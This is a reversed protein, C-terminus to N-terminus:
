GAAEREAACAATIATVLTDIDDVTHACTVSVRLRSTGAPVSPPRIAPVFHGSERLRQSVRTAMDATALVVPIIPAEGPMVSGVNHERLRNRLRDALARLTTRRQPEDEIIDIATHAAACVSPPLATSFFQTRARHWLWDILDSSGAVFGGHAGVAKSLTGIRVPVRDAIGAAECLGSGCSGFVGTAHAEDVILAADRSEAADCLSGLSTVNGDMSFVSETVILVRDASSVDALQRRLDDVDNHEFLRVRARALRCGDILSAHNLRDSFIVDGAEAVASVTGVNAAYGSPFLLAAETGEFEALRRELEAHWPSRGVILASARSGAGAESLARQAAAVVRPDHSLNLYDNSAYDRLRQGAFECWGGPLSRVERRPRWLGQRRIESLRSTLWNRTSSTQRTNM